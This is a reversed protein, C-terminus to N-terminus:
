LVVWWTHSSGRNLSSFKDMGIFVEESFIWVLCYVYIERVSLLEIVQWHTSLVHDIIMLILSHLVIRLTTLHQHVGLCKSM